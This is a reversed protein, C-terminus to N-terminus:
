VAAPDGVDSGADRLELGLAHALARAQAVRRPVRAAGFAGIAEALQTQADDREGRAALARALELRTMAAEFAAGNL